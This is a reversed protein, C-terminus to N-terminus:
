PLVYETNVSGGFTINTDFIQTLGGKIETQNAVIVGNSIKGGNFVLVVGSPLTASGGGLDFNHRIELISNAYSSLDATLDFGSKLVYFGKTNGSAKARNQLQSIENKYAIGDGGAFPIFEAETNQSSPLQNILITSM